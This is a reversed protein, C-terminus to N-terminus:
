TNAQGQAQKEQERLQALKTSDSLALEGEQQQNQLTQLQAELQARQAAEEARYKDLQDHLRSKEEIESALSQKLLEQMAKEDTVQQELKINKHHVQQLQHKLVERESEFEQRQLEVKEKQMGAWGCVFVHKCRSYPLCACACSLAASKGLEKELSEMIPIMEDLLNENEAQLQEIKAAFEAREADSLTVEYESGESM